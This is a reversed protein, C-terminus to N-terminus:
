LLIQKVEWVILAFPFLFVAVALVLFWLSVLFKM